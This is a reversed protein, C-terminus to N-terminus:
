KRERCHGKIPGDGVGGGDEIEKVWCRVAEVFRWFNFQRNYVITLNLQAIKDRTDHLRAIGLHCLHCLRLHSRPDLEDSRKQTAATETWSVM